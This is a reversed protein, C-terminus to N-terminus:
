VLAGRFGFTLFLPNQIPEGRAFVKSTDNERAIALCEACTVIQPLHPVISVRLHDRAVLKISFAESAVHKKSICLLWRMQAFNFRIFPGTFGVGTPILHLLM